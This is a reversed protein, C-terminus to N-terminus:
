TALRPGAVKNFYLSQCLHKATFEAVNRLLGKKVSCRHHNSRPLDVAISENDSFEGSVKGLFTFDKLNAPTAIEYSVEIIDMRSYNSLLNM